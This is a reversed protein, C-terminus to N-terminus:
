VLRMRELAWRLNRATPRARLFGTLPMILYDSSDEPSKFEERPGGSAVGYAAVCGIAPAGRVVMDTIGKPSTQWTRCTM